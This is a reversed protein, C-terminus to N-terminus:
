VALYRTNKASFHISTVRTHPVQMSFRSQVGQFTVFGRARHRHLVPSTKQSDRESTWPQKLEEQGHEWTTYVTHVTGSVAISARHAKFKLLAVKPPHKFPKTIGSPLPLMCYEAPPSPRLVSLCWTFDEHPVAPFSMSPLIMDLAHFLPLSFADCSSCGLLAAQAGPAQPLLAWVYNLGSM